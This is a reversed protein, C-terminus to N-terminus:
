DDHNICTEIKLGERTDSRCSSMSTRNRNQM